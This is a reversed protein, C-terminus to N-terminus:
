ITTRMDKFTQLNVKKPILVLNTHTISEPLSNGFLFIWFWEYLTYGWQTEFHKIFDVQYVMHVM